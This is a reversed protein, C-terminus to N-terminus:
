NYHHSVCVCVSLSLSLSLSLSVEEKLVDLLLTPLAAGYLGKTCMLSLSLSLSLSVEEKLVDLRLTPLAAGYLAKAITAPLETVQISILLICAHPPPYM